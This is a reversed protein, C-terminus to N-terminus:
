ATRIATSPDFGEPPHGVLISARPIPPLFFPRLDAQRVFSFGAREAFGRLTDSSRLRPQSVGTAITRANWGDLRVNGTPGFEWVVGLGGPELVRLLEAFLANLEADDLHKAVYGCLALSFRGNGFPLALASGQVLPRDAGGQDRAAMRLMARSGDLGIPATTPRLQSDIAGLLAGRGSGIDLIRASRDLQLERHLRMPPGNVLPLAQPGILWRFVIASPSRGGVWRDYERMRAAANSSANAGQSMGGITDARVDLNLGSRAVFQPM